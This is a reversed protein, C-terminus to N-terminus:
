NIRKWFTVGYSNPRVTKNNDVKNRPWLSTTMMGTSSPLIGTMSKTDLLDEVISEAIGVTHSHQPLIYDLKKDLNSGRESWLCCKSDIQEWQRNNRYFLDPLTANVTTYITGVPYLADFWDDFASSDSEGKNGTHFYLYLAAKGEQATKVYTRNGHLAYRTRPLRFRKGTTDLVYYWATGIDDDNYLQILANVANESYAVIKHGDLALRYQISIQSGDSLTYTDTQNQNSQNYDTKLHEYITKYGYDQLEYYQTGEIFSNDTNFDNDRAKRYNGSDDSDEVWYQKNLNRTQDSTVTCTHNRNYFSKSTNDDSKIAPIWCLLDTLSYNYDFFMPTLLPVDLTNISTGGGGGGDIGNRLQIPVGDVKCTAIVAGVNTMPNIEVSSAPIDAKLRGDEMYLFYKKGEYEGGLNANTAVVKRGRVFVFQVEDGLDAQETIPVIPPVAGAAFPMRRVPINTRVNSDSM